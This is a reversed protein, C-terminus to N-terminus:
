TLPADLSPDVAVVIKGFHARSELAVEAEAIQEFPYVAHVHPVIQGEFVLRTVDLFDQWNGMPAGLIRRHHQYIERISIQPVDGGTAGSITMRGGMALSQISHRWTPAGVADHVFDVGEGATWELVSPLWDTQSDFAAAAGLHLARERKAPTSATALVTAGARVAIQLVACGVGGSAGVVLAREGPRLQGVTIAARWATTYAAPVAAATTFPVSEPVPVVNRAPVTVYEALGGWRHEGLITYRPCMSLEGRRCQRCQGCGIAPDVLVRAGPAPSDVVAAGVREIRGAVDVGSVHPLHIPHVGPGKLGERAFVDLHNLGVAAVKILVEDAAPDPVPVEELSLAEPGGHQRIVAARM